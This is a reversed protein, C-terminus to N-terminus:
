RIIGTKKGLYASPNKRLATILNQQGWRIGNYVDAVTPGPPTSPPAAQQNAIGRKFEEIAGVFHKAM